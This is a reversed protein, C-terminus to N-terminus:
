FGGLTSVGPGPAKLRPAFSAQRSASVLDRNFSRQRSLGEASLRQEHLSQLAAINTGRQKEKFEQQFRKEGLAELRKREEEESRAISAGAGARVGATAAAFLGAVIAAAVSM